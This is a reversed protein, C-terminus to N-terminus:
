PIDETINKFLNVYKYYLENSTYYCYAIINYM